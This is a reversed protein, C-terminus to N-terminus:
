TLRSKIFLSVSPYSVKCKLLREIKAKAATAPYLRLESAGQKEHLAVVIRQRYILTECKLIEHLM